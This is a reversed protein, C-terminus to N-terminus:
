ANYKAACIEKKGEFRKKKKKKKVNKDRFHHLDATFCLNLSLKPKVEALVHCFQNLFWVKDFIIYGPQSKCLM